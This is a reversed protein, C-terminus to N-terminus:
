QNKPVLLIYDWHEESLRDRGVLLDVLEKNMKIEEDEGFGANDALYEAFPKSKVEWDSQKYYSQYLNGRFITLIHSDYDENCGFAIQFADNAKLFSRCLRTERGNESESVFWDLQTPTIRHRLVAATLLCSTEAFFRTLQAYNAIYSHRGVGNLWKEKEEM